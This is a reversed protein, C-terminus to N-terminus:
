VAEFDVAFCQPLVNSNIGIDTKKRIKKDAGKQWIEQFVQASQCRYSKDSSFVHRAPLCLFASVGPFKNDREDSLYLLCVSVTLKVEEDRFLDASWNTVGYTECHERHSIVSNRQQESM